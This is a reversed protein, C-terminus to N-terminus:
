NAFLFPLNTQLDWALNSLAFIPRTLSSEGCVEIQWTVRQTGLDFRLQLQGTADIVEGRDAFIQSVDLYRLSVDASLPLPIPKVSSRAAEWTRRNRNQIATWGSAGFGPEGEILTGSFQESYGYDFSPTLRGQVQEVRDKIGSPTGISQECTYATLSSFNATLISARTYLSTVSNGVEECGSSVPAVLRAVTTGLLKGEKVSLNTSSVDIAIDNLAVTKEAGGM